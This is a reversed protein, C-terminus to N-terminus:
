QKIYTERAITVRNGERKYYEVEDYEGPTSNEKLVLYIKNGNITYTYDASAIVRGYATCTWRLNNGSVELHFLEEEYGNEEVYTGAPILEGNTGEDDDSSCATIGVNVMAVMVFALLSLFYKKSMKSM